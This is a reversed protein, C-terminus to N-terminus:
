SVSWELVLLLQSRARRAMGHFARCLRWYPAADEGLERATRAAAASARYSADLEAFHVELEETRTMNVTNDM